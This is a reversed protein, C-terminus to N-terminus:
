GATLTVNVPGPRRTTTIRPPPPPLVPRITVDPKRTLPLTACARPKDGLQMPGCLRKDAPLWNNRPRSHCNNNLLQCRNAVVKCQRHNRSRVCIEQSRPTRRCAVPRRPCDQHCWTAYAAGVGRVTRCDREQTHTWTLQNSSSLDPRNLELLECINRFRRCMGDEARGCVRPSRAACVAPLRCLPWRTPLITVPGSTPILTPTWADIPSSLLLLLAASLVIVILRTLQMNNHSGHRTYLNNAQVKRVVNKYSRCRPLVFSRSGYSLFLLRCM